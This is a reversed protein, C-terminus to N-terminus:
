ENILKRLKLVNDSLWQIEKESKQNWFKLNEIDNNIMKNVQIEHYLKFFVFSNNVFLSAISFSM